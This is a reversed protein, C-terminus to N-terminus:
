EFGLEKRVIRVGTVMNILKRSDAWRATQSLGCDPAFSLRDPTTYRLCLRVREAIDGPTGLGELYGYFSLNFDLRTQEGDTIVDLGANVQDHIAVMVANNQLEIIEDSGFHDLHLSSFERWSPFPNKGIVSTRLPIM